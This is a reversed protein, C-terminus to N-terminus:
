QSAPGFRHFATRLCYQMFADLDKINAKRILDAVMKDYKKRRHEFKIEQEIQTAVEDIPVTGALRKSELKIVFVRGGAPIPDSIQGEGIKMAAKELKDYPEALSGATVDQWLGGQEARHGDSYQRALEAFDEGQQAKQIIEKAKAIAAQETALAESNAQSDSGPSKVRIDIVRFSFSTDWSYREDRVANYRDLIERYSVPVTEKLEQNVYSQTLLLKRQYQRFGYWDYGMREIAQQALAKNGGYTAVFRNVESDVAKDLMIDINDPAKAKAKQYILVETVKDGIYRQLIPVAANAYRQYDGSQALPELQEELPTIIEDATITQDEVSLALGGSPAPLNNRQAHPIEKMQEETFKGKESGGFCGTFILILACLLMAASTKILNKETM